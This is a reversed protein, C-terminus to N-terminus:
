LGSRVRKSAQYARQRINGCTRCNRKGRHVYTNELTLEHGRLCHTQDERGNRRAEKPVRKTNESPTVAELHSPNVCKRNRCLHDIHLGDPIPGNVLEYSVRHAYHPHMDISFQGYGAKTLSATWEWCDQSKDVKKWFRQTIDM